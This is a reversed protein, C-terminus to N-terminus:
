WQAQTVPTQGLVFSRLKVTHQAGDSNGREAETEPSGKLFAGAPIQVMTIAVGEALVELYGKVRM